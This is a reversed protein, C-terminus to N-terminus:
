KSEEPYARARLERYVSKPMVECGALKKKAVLPKGAADLVIVQIKRDDAIEVFQGPEIMIVEHTTEKGGFQCGSLLVLACLLVVRKPLPDKATRNPIRMPTKM